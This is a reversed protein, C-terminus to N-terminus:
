IYIYYILVLLLFKTFNINMLLLLCLDVFSFYVLFLTSGEFLYRWVIYAFLVTNLVRSIVNNNIHIYIECHLETGKCLHGTLFLLFSWFDIKSYLHVSLEMLLDIDHIDHKNVCKFKIKRVNVNKSLNKIYFM